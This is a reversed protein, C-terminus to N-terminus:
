RSDNPANETLSSRDRVEHAIWSSIEFGKSTQMRDNSTPDFREARMLAAVFRETRDKSPAEGEIAFSSKTEKTYLYHVARKLIAPEVASVM